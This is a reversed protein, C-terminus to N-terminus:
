LLESTSETNRVVAKTELDKDKKFVENKFKQEEISEQAETQFGESDEVLIEPEQDSVESGEYFLTFKEGGNLYKEEKPVEKIKTRPQENPTSICIPRDLSSFSLEMSTEFENSIVQLQVVQSDTIDDDGSDIHIEPVTKSVTCTPHKFTDDESASLSPVKQKNCVNDNEEM